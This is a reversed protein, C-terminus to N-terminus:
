RIFFHTEFVENKLQRPHFVAYTPRMGIGQTVGWGGPAWYGFLTFFVYIRALVHQVYRPHDYLTIVSDFSRTEFVDVKSSGLTFFQILVGHGLAKPPGGGGPAWYGFLTFFVYM